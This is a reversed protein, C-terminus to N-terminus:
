EEGLDKGALISKLHFAGQTVVKEGGRIGAVIELQGNVTNGSKVPRLEFSTPSKQIFLVNSEEVQQLASIPVALARKSFTTPVRVSAFMDLKLRLGPNPLECRVRATRTQPDLVDSIYAVRGKFEEDPYTDVTIFASQGLRIRGLDKEYVEAQVWVQSIDAVTFLESNADVGEGPAAKAKTVVGAFPARLTTLVPGRLTGEEAGLRRLRATIGNLVSEQSRISQQLELQEGQAAELEKQPSAGIEVLRKARELQKRQTALQVRLRQLEARASEEQSLLEGAEINDLEALTQGQSVRDGVKALVRQVRARALARVESVTSDIPQVTGTVQLYETLQRESVTEVQLGVHGQAELKMEVLVPGKEKEESLAEQKTRSCTIFILSFTLLLLFRKM